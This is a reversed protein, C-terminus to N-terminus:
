ANEYFIEHIRYKRLFKNDTINYRNKVNRNMNKLIRMERGPRPNTVLQPSTDAGYVGRRECRNALVTAEGDTRRREKSAPGLILTLLIPLKQLNMKLGSTPQYVLWRFRGAFRMGSTNIRM